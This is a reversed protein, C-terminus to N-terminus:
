IPLEEDLWQEMVRISDFVEKGYKAFGKQLDLVYLTIGRVQEEYQRQKRLVSEKTANTEVELVYQYKRGGEEYEFYIDPECPPNLSKFISGDKIKAGRIVLMKAAHMSFNTHQQQGHIRQYWGLNSM